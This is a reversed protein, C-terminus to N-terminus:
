IKRELTPIAMKQCELVLANIMVSFPEAVVVPPAGRVKLTVWCSLGLLALERIAGINHTGVGQPWFPLTLFLPFLHM